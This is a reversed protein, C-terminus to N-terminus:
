LFIGKPASMTKGTFGLSRQEKVHYPDDGGALRWNKHQLVDFVQLAVVLPPGKTDNHLREILQTVLNGIRRMGSRVIRLHNISAM